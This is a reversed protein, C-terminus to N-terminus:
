KLPLLKYRTIENRRGSETCFDCKKQLIKRRLYGPQMKNFSVCRTATNFFILTRKFYIVFLLTHANYFAKQQKKFHFQARLFYTVIVIVQLRLM